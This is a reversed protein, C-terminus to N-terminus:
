SQRGASDRRAQIWPVAAFALQTALGLLGPVTAFRALYADLGEGFVLTAIALELIMLLAFAALGMSIRTASEHAVRFRRTSWGSLWWSVSLVVPAELAVAATPGIRPALLTVRVAGVAFAVVFVGLTYAVGALLVGRRDPPHRELSGPEV